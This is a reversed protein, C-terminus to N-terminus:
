QLNREIFDAVAPLVTNAPVDEAVVVDNHAFGEAIVVEFGGAAGGFTPFAENPLSDDIVRPTSGDCSPATCTGLLEAFDVFRGPVPILGNSGGVALVPIDINGVQTLNVIDRRGRGVSLDSSDLGIRQDCDSDESCGAGVDGATCTGTDCVGQATLVDLGSSPFYWDSANNGGDVFTGTMRTIDVVEVEQGWVDGPLTTPAPGNDPTATSPLVDDITLWQAIQGFEADIDGMSTAIAPSLEAGVGDDDLFRGALAQPTSNGLVGVLALEPVQEFANNGDIGLQDVGLIVLNQDPDFQSIAQIAGPESAAGVQPSLGTVASYATVPEICVAPTAGACDVAETAVTCAAGDACRPAADRVASFLAGDYKAEMRDLSDSSLSAAGSDGFFVNGELLVLGRVKAYGPDAPGAGSQDFDTAAYWATFTTGLSHGGLFVNPTLGRALNVVANIDQAHVMPTWQALFPIDSSTNYFGARRGLSGLETSLPLSLENGFYWDLAVEPLENRWAILSGGRDELMSSRREFGWVEVDLGQDSWMREILNEAFIRFNNAGSGYGPILVLIVDPDPFSGPRRWRQFTARNLNINSTGFQTLLKTNTVTVGSTGPTRPPQAASGVRFIRESLPQGSCSGDETGNDMADCSVVGHLAFSDAIDLCWQCLSAEQICAHVTEADESACAPAVAALSAGHDSCRGIATRLKDTRGNADLLDCAKAVKGKPDVTMCNALALEAPSGESVEEEVCDLFLKTRTALCKDRTKLLAGQCQAAVKDATATLIASNLNTGFIAEVKALNDNDLRRKVQTVTGLGFPPTRLQGGADICSSRYEDAVAEVSSLVRGKSDGVFCGAAQSPFRKGRAIDKVCGQRQKDIARVAKQIGSSVGSLCSVQGPSFQARAPGAALAVLAFVVFPARLRVTLPM